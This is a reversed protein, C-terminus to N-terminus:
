YYANVFVHGLLEVRVHTRPAAACWFRFQFTGARIRFGLGMGGGTNM